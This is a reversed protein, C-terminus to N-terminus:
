INTDEEDIVQEQQDFIRTDNLMRCEDYLANSMGIMSAALVIFVWRRVWKAVRKIGNFVRNSKKTSKDM